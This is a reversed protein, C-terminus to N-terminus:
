LFDACVLRIGNSVICATVEDESTTEMIPRSSLLIKDACNNTYDATVAPIIPRVILAPTSFTALKPFPMTESFHSYYEFAKVLILSRRVM